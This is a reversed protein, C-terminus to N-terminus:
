TRVGIIGAMVGIVAIAPADGTEAVVAAVAEVAV